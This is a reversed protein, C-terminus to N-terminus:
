SKPEMQAPYPIVLEWYGNKCDKWKGVRISKGSDDEVEIFRGATPGPPGDFVIHLNGVPQVDQASELHRASLMQAIATNAKWGEWAAKAEVTTRFPKRSELWILFLERVQEATYKSM